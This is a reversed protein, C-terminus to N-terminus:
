EKSSKSNEMMKVLNDNSPLIKECKLSYLQKSQIVLKRQTEYLYFVTKTFSQRVIRARKTGGIYVIDDVDYDSGFLFTMGALTNAILNKFFLACIGAIFLWGYEGILNQFVSELQQVDDM